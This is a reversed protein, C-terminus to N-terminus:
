HPLVDCPDVSLFIEDLTLDGLDDSASRISIQTRILDQHALLLNNSDDVSTSHQLIRFADVALFQDSEGSFSDHDVVEFALKVFSALECAHVVVVEQQGSAFFDQRALVEPVGEQQPRFHLGVHQHRAAAPGLGDVRVVLGFEEPGVAAGAELVDHLASVQEDSFSHAGLKLLLAHHDELVGGGVLAADGATRQFNQSCEGHWLHLEELVECLLLARLDRLDLIVLHILHDLTHLLICPQLELLHPLLHVLLARQRVLGGVLHADDHVVQKVHDLSALKILVLFQAV